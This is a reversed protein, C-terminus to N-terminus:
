ILSLRRSFRKNDDNKSKSAINVDASPIIKELQHKTDAMEDAEHGEFLMESFGSTNPAIEDFPTTPLGVQVVNSHMLGPANLDFGSGTNQVPSVSELSFRFENQGIYVKDNEDLQHASIKVNNVYTHNTSNNDILICLIESTVEDQILQIVAHQKSVFEDDISIDNELGRGITIETKDLAFKVGPVGNAYQVLIAMHGMYGTYNRYHLFQGVNYLLLLSM